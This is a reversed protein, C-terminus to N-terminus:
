PGATSREGVFERSRGRRHGDPQWVCSEESEKSEVQPKKCIQVCLSDSQVVEHLQQLRERRHHKNLQM